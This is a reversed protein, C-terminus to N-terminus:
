DALLYNLKIANNQEDTIIEFLMDRIENNAFAFYIQRYFVIEDISNFLSKKYNDDLDQVLQPTQIDPLQPKIGTLMYYIEEFLKVHKLESIYMSRVIEADEADRIMKMLAQYFQADTRSDNIGDEVMQLLKKDPMPTTTTNYMESASIDSSRMNDQKPNYKNVNYPYM